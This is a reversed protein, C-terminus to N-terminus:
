VNALQPIRLTRVFLQKRGLIHNLSVIISDVANIFLSCNFILEKILESYSIQFIDMFDSSHVKMEFDLSANMLRPIQIQPHHWVRIIANWNVYDSFDSKLITYGNNATGRVFRTKFQVKWM